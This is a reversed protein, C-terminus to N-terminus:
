SEPIPRANVDIVTDTHSLEIPLSTTAGSIRDVFVIEGGDITFIGSGDPAWSYEYNGFNGGLRLSLQTVDGTALEFFIAEGSQGYSILMATGDPSMSAPQVNRDFQVGEAEPVVTREESEVDILVQSCIRAADCETVFLTRESRGILQGTSIRRATSPTQGPPSVLFLDGADVILLEGTVVEFSGYVLTEWNATLDSATGDLGISLIASEGPVIGFSEVVFHDVNSGNDYVWFGGTGPPMEVEIPPQGHEILIPAVIGGDGSDTTILAVRERLRLRSGPRREGLDLTSTAGTPLNIEIVLGSNTLAVLQTPTSLGTLPEPIVLQGDIWTGPPVLENQVTSGSNPTTTAPGTTSPPTTAQPLEEVVTSVPAFTSDTSVERNDGSRVSAAVVVGVVVVSLAIGAGIWRRRSTTNIEAPPEASSPEPDLVPASSESTWEPGWFVSETPAPPAPVDGSWPDPEDSMEALTEDVGLARVAGQRRPSFDEGKDLCRALADLCGFHEYFRACLEDALRPM